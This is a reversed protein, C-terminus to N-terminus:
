GSVVRDRGGGKARYLAQDARDIVRDISEGEQWWALGISVTLRTHGGAPLEIELTAVSRRLREAAATASAVDASGLIALFEEGGWRGLVDSVRLSDKAARAFERLVADGGAHGHRDNISKFHDIDVMAVAFHAGTRQARAQYALLEERLRSRNFLGTLDDREATQRIRQLAQELESKQRGLRARLQSMRMALLAMPPTSVLLFSFYIAEELPPFRQPQWLAMAIMVTGYLGLAWVTLWRVTRAPLAFIAFLLALALMPLVAGRLPGLMAYCAATSGIAWTIQPATLVPDRWQRTWSFQLGAWAFLNMVLSLPAWIIVAIWPAQGIAAAAVMLPIGAAIAVSAAVLQQRQSRARQPNTSATAIVGPNDGTSPIEVNM